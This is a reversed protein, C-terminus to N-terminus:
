QLRSMIEPFHLILSDECTKCKMCKSEQIFARQYANIFIKLRPTFSVKSLVFFLVFNPKLTALYFTPPIKLHILATMSEYCMM